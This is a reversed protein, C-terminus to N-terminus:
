NRSMSLMVNPVLFGRPQNDLGNQVITRYRLWSAIAILGLAMVFLCGIFGFFEIADPDKSSEALPIVLFFYVLPPMFFLLFAVVTFNKPLRESM